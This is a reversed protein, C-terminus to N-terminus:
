ACGPQGGPDHGLEDVLGAALAQQIISAGGMIHVLKEGAAVTTQEVTHKIGETVFGAATEKGVSDHRM